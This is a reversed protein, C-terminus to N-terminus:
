SNPKGRQKRGLAVVGLMALGILTITGPEPVSTSECNGGNVCAAGIFLNEYGNNLGMFDVRVRMETYNSDWILDNVTESFIAYGVDNQGLNHVFTKSSLENGDCAVQNVPIQTTSNFCLTIDHGSFVYDGHGYAEASGSTTNRFYYETASGDSKIMSVQAWAWLNPSAGTQNNNFYAVMDHQIGDFTLYDQLAQLSINWSTRIGPEATTTSWNEPAENPPKNPFDFGNPVPGSAIAKNAGILDQNNTQGSGNGIVLADQITNATNFSYPSGGNSTSVWDMIPMSYSYFDGYQIAYASATPFNLVPVPAAFVSSSGLILSASILKKINKM